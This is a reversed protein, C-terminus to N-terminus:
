KCLVDRILYLLAGSFAVIILCGAGVYLMLVVADPVSVKCFCSIILVDMCLVFLVFAVKLLAIIM